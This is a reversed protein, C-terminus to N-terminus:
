DKEPKIFVTDWEDVGYKIRLGRPFKTGPIAKGQFSDVPYCRALHGDAYRTGNIGCNGCQGHPCHRLTDRFDLVKIKMRM